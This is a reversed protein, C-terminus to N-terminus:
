FLNHLQKYSITKTLPLVRPVKIRETTTQINEKLKLKKIPFDILKDCDDRATKSREINTSLISFDLNPVETNIRDTDIRLQLDAIIKSNQRAKFGQDEYLKTVNELNKRLKKVETKQLESASKLSQSEYTLQKIRMMLSEERNKWLIKAEAFEHENGLIQRNLVAITDKACALRTILDDNEEKLRTLSIIEKYNNEKLNEM